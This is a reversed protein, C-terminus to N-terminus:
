FIFLGFDPEEIMKNWRTITDKKGIAGIGNPLDSEELIYGANCPTM